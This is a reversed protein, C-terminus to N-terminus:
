PDDDPLSAASCYEVDKKKRNTVEPHLDTECQNELTWGFAGVLVFAGAAGVVLPLVMWFKRAAINELGEVGGPIPDDIDSGHSGTV